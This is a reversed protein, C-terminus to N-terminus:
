PWLEWATLDDETTDLGLSLSGASLRAGSAGAIKEWRDLLKELNDRYDQQDTDIQGVSYLEFKSSDALMQRLSIVIMLDYDGEARAYNRDLQAKTFIPPDNRNVIGLDTLADTYQDATLSYAM